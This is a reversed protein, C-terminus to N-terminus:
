REHTTGARRRLSSLTFISTDFVEIRKSIVFALSLRIGTTNARERELNRVDVSRTVKTKNAGSHVVSRVMVRICVHKRAATSSVITTCTLASSRSPRRLLFDSLCRLAIWRMSNRLCHQIRDDLDCSSRAGDPNNRDIRHRSNRGTPSGDYDIDMTSRGNMAIGIARTTRRRRGRFRRCTAGHIRCSTLSHSVGIPSSSM